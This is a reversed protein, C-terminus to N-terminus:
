GEKRSIGKLETEQEKDFEKRRNSKGLVYVCCILIFSLVLFGIVIGAVILYIIQKPM